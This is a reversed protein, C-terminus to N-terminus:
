NLENELQEIRRASPRRARVRGPSVAGPTITKRPLRLTVPLTESLSQSTEQADAIRRRFLEALSEHQKLSRSM